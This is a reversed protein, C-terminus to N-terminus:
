EGDHSATHQLNDGMYPNIPQSDTFNNPTSGEYQLQFNDSYHSTGDSSRWDHEPHLSTEAQYHSSAGNYWNSGADAEQANSAPLETPPSSLSGALDDGGNTAISGFPDSASDAPGFLSAAEEM